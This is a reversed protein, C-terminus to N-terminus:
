QLAEVKWATKQQFDMARRKIFNIYEHPDEDVHTFDYVLAGDALVTLDHVEAVDIFKWDVLNGDENKFVMEEGKGMSCAKSYAENKNIAEIIRLQVDFQTQQSGYNININFVIKAIYWNM